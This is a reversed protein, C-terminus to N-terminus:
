YSVWATSNFFVPTKVSGGGTLTGLYTPSTADTVIAVDGVNGAPLTAVTYSKLTLTNSLSLRGNDFLQLADFWASADLKSMWVKSGTVASGSIARVEDAFTLLSAGPATTNWASSSQAIYQSRRVPIGATSVSGTFSLGPTSTTTINAIVNTSAANMGFAGGGISGNASIGGNTSIGNIAFFAGTHDFRFQQAVYTASGPLKFEIVYDGGGATTGQIPVLGTRVSITQSGATANTKYTQGIYTLFGPMQQTGNTAPTLNQIIMGLSDPLALYPAGPYTTGLGLNTTITFKSRATDGIGVNGINGSTGFHINSTNFTGTVWQSGGGGGSLNLIGTTSNYTGGTGTVTIAGRALANSYWKNTSGQAISDTNFDVYQNYRNLYGNALYTPTLSSGHFVLNTVTGDGKSFAITSDNVSSINKLYKGIQYQNVLASLVSTSTDARIRPQGSVTDLLLGNGLLYDTINRLAAATDNLATLSAKTALLLYITSSDFTAGPTAASITINPYTGSFTINSGPVFRPAKLVTDAPTLLVINGSGLLSSGNINKIDTGPVLINQKTPDAIGNITLNPYTGSIGINTGPLLRPAKLITDGPTILVINGPGLLSGSNITKINSGSVLLPQKSNIANRYSLLMLNSDIYKMYDTGPLGSLTDVKTTTGGAFVLGDAYLKAARETILKDAAKTTSTSNTSIGTVKTTKIKFSDVVNVTKASVLKVPTQGKALFSLM